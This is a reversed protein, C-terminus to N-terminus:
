LIVIIRLFACIEHGYARLIIDSHKAFDCAAFHMQVLKAANDVITPPFHGAMEWVYFDIRENDYRVVHM